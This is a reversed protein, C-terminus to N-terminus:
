TDNHSKWGDIPKCPPTPIYPQQLSNKKKKQFRRIEVTRSESPLLFYILHSIFSFSSPLFRHQSVRVLRGPDFSPPLLFLISTFSLDSIYIIFHPKPRFPYEQINLDEGQSRFETLPGDQPMKRRAGSVALECCDRLECSLVCTEESLFFFLIM